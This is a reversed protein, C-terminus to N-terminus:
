RFKVPLLIKVDEVLITNGSRDSFVLRGGRGRITKSMKKVETFGSFPIKVFRSM